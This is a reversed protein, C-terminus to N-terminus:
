AVEDVFFFFVFFFLHIFIYKHTVDHKAEYRAFKQKFYKDAGCNIEIINAHISEFSVGMIYSSEFHDVDHMTMRQGNKTQFFTLPVM